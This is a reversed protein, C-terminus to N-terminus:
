IRTFDDYHFTLNSLETWLESRKNILSIYTSVLPQAPLPKLAVTPFPGKKFFVFTIGRSIIEQLFLPPHPICPYFSRKCNQGLYVYVQNYTFRNKFALECRVVGTVTVTVNVPPVMSIELSWHSSCFPNCVWKVRWHLTESLTVQHSCIKLAMKLFPKLHSTAECVLDHKCSTIRHSLYISM